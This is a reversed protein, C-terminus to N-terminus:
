AKKESKKVIGYGLKDAWARLLEVQENEQHHRWGSKVLQVVGLNGGVTVLATTDAHHTEVVIAANAHCGSPIDVPRDDHRCTHFKSVAESLKRGFQPDSEISDLADNYVVVTTNYGM